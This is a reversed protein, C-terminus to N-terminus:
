RGTGDADHMTALAASRDHLSNSAGSWQVPIVAVSSCARARQRDLRRRRGDARRRDADVATVSDALALAGGVM